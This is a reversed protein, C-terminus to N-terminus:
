VIDGYVIALDFRSLLVAIKLQLDNFLTRTMAFRSRISSPSMQAPKNGAVVRGFNVKGMVPLVKTTNPLVDGMVCM